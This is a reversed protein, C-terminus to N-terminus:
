PTLRRSTLVTRAQLVGSHAYPPFCVVQYWQLYLTEPLFFLYFAQPRVRTVAYTNRKLGVDSHRCYIQCLHVNCACTGRPCKLCERPFCASPGCGQALELTRSSTTHLSHPSPIRRSFFIREAMRSEKTKSLNFQPGSSTGIITVCTCMVDCSSDTPVMKRQGNTPIRVM